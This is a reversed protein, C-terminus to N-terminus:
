VPGLWLSRKRHKPPKVNHSTYGLQLAHIGGHHVRGYANRFTFFQAHGNSVTRSPQRSPSALLTQWAKTTRGPNLARGNVALVADIQRSMNSTEERM